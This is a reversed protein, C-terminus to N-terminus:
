SLNTISVKKGDFGIMVAEDGARYFILGYVDRINQNLYLAPQWARRQPCTVKFNATALTPHIHSAV